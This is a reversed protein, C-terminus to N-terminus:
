VFEEIRYMHQFCILSVASLQISVVLFYPSRNAVKNTKGVDAAEEVPLAAAEAAVAVETVEVETAAEAVEVPVAM